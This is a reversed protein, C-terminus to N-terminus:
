GDEGLGKKIAIARALAVQNWDDMNWAYGPEEHSRIFAQDIPTHSYSGDEVVASLLEEFLARLLDIRKEYGALDLSPANGAVLVRAEFDAPLWDLRLLAGMRRSRWPLWVRNFAFLAQVLYDYAASLRDHAVVAGLSEWRALPDYHLHQDLHTIAEDLRRLREDENYM